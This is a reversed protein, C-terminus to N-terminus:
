VERRGLELSHLPRRKINQIDCGYTSGFAPLRSRTCLKEITDDHKRFKTEKLSIRDNGDWEFTVEQANGSELAVERFGQYRALCSGDFNFTRSVDESM